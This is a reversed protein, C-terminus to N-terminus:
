PYPAAKICSKHKNFSQLPSDNIYLEIETSM